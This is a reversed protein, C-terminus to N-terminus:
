VVNPYERDIWDQKKKFGRRGGETGGGKKIDEIMEKGERMFKLNINNLIMEFVRDQWQAPTEGEIPNLIRHEMRGEAYQKMAIGFSRLTDQINIAGRPMLGMPYPDTPTKLDIVPGMLPEGKLASKPRTQARTVWLRATNLYGSIDM